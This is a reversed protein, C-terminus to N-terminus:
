QIFGGSAAIGGVSGKQSLVTPDTNGLGYVTM